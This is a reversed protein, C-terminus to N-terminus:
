SGGSVFPKYLFNVTIIKRNKYTTSVEQKCLNKIQSDDFNKFPPAGKKVVDRVYKFINGTKKDKVGFMSRQEKDEKARFTQEVIINKSDFVIKLRRSYNVLFRLVNTQSLVPTLVIAVIAMAILVETLMFGSKCNKCNLNKLFM